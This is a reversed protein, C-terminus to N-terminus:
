RVSSAVAPFAFDEVQAGQAATRVMEIIPLQMEVAEIEYRRARTVPHKPTFLTCCDEDPIISIPFTGLREAEASIEDKDFAILPRLVPITAVSEIVSLNEITQSAVQGIVDGTVLARAGDRRAIVEAIRLMLRRYVIVRLAPPVALVVQRQLEGFAVLHLRMRLQYRALLAAIERV